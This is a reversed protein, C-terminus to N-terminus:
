KVKRVAFTFVRGLRTWYAGRIRRRRIASYLDTNISQNIHYTLDTLTLGMSDSLFTAWLM